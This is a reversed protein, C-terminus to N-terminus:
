GALEAPWADIVEGAVDDVLAAGEPGAYVLANTITDILDERLVGFGRAWLVNERIGQGHGQMVHFHLLSLPLTQKPLVTLMHEIRNRYAKLMAPRYRGLFGVYRPVEGLVRQYWAEVLEFEGDLLRPDSWDLGTAFAEPDPHYPDRYDLPLDETPWEMGKVARAITQMGAPGCHLFAIAIQELSAAKNKTNWLGAYKVGEEFGILAYLTTYGANYLARRGGTPLNLACWLRYRKLVSPDTDLWFDLGEHPHGFQATYHASFAQKEEETTVDLKTLDLGRHKLEDTLRAGDSLDVGRNLNSQLSTM